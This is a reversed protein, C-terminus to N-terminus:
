NERSFIKLLKTESLGLIHLSALQDMKSDVLRQNPSEIGVFSFILIFSYIIFFNAQSTGNIM